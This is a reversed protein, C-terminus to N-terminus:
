EWFVCTGFPIVGVTALKLSISTLSELSSQHGSDDENLCASRAAALVLDFSCHPGTELVILTVCDSELLEAPIKSGLHLSFHSSARPQYILAM